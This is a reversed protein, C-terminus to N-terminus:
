DAERYPGTEAIKLLEDNIKDQEEKGLELDALQVERNVSFIKKLVSYFPFVDRKNQTIITVAPSRHTHNLEIM